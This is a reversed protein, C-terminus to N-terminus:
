TQPMNDIGTDTEVPGELQESVLKRFKLQKNLHCIILRKDTAEDSLISFEDMTKYFAKKINSIIRDNDYISSCNSNSHKYLYGENYIAEYQKMYFAGRSNSKLFRTYNDNNIKGLVSVFLVFFEWINDGRELVGFYSIHQKNLQQMKLQYKNLVDLVYQESLPYHEIVDDSFIKKDIEEDTLGEFMFNSDLKFYMVRVEAHKMKGWDYLVLYESLLNDIDTDLAPTFQQIPFLNKITNENEKVMPYNREPQQLGYHEPCYPTTNLNM